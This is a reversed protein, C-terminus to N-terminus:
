TYNRLYLSQQESGDLPALVSLGKGTDPRMGDAWAAGLWWVRGQKQQIVHLVNVAYGFM